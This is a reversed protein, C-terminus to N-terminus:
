TTKQGKVEEAGLGVEGAGTCVVALGAGAWDDGAEEPDEDPRPEDPSCHAM